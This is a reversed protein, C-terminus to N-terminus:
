PHADRRHTRTDLGARPGEPELSASSLSLSATDSQGSCICGSFGARQATADSEAPDADGKSWRGTEEDEDQGTQGLVTILRATSGLYRPLVQHASPGLVFFLTSLSVEVSSTPWKPCLHAAVWLAAADEASRSVSQACSDSWFM